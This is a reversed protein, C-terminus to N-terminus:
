LFYIKHSYCYRKVKDIEDIDFERGIFLRGIRKFEFVTNVLERAVTDIRKVNQVALWFDIGHKRHQQAKYQFEPPLTRFERANIYIQAEDMLIIGNKVQILETLYRWYHIKGANPKLNMRKFDIHFNSYVDVGRRIYDYAQKVLFYTKGTGPKGVVVNIM